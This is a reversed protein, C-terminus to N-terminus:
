VKRSENQWWPERLKRKFIKGSDERPLQEHLEVRRPVKYNAIRDRLFEQVAAPEIQQGPVPQVAAMLSEGFEADPVGFVCCDAVGPMTQLVLEIEAPYINVGGSIVMDVKRDCIYLFGDEDLYGMDGLTVLGDREIARRDADRNIYSFDPVAPQRVYITGMTGAPVPQDADDLIRLQVGPLARGASGPHSLWDNSDIFTTYGTESSGYTETIVPGFWAIMAQKLQLPCPSGTSSVQVLSSVDYRRRVSEDLALLRKYMTPVLYAHTVRHREILELTRQADFRPELVLTAGLQSFHGLSAMAASHYLPASLYAVVDSGHGTGYVIGSAERLRREMDARLEPPPAIRRVGKPKGTTGSTYSIAGYAFGTRPPMDPLGVGFDPWAMAAGPRPSSSGPDVPVVVVRVAAPIGSEIQPLLDAHVFLAAAGSDDLVHGAEMAKFHWNISALYLGARRCALVLAVYEPGNRLMAAVTGGEAIGLAHLGALIRVIEGEIQQPTYCQDNCYLTPIM